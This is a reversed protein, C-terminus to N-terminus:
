AWSSVVFLFPITTPRRCKYGKLLDTLNLPLGMALQKPMNQLRLCHFVIYAELPKIISGTPYQASVARNFLPQSEDNAINSYDTKSIGKSFLNDDYSPYSVLALVAGTKPNMAVAAGRKAGINKISKELAEYVKQQLDSDVNLALSKGSIPQLIIKEGKNVGVANKIAEMKGPTGRLFDEYSKELGTKGIYDNLSYDASYELEGKNIRGMYGLVHAFNQGFIYNRVTNEEIVCEPFENIKSEWILLTEHPMNESVLVKSQDSNEIENKLEEQDKGLLNAIKSIEALVAFTDASFKRKDCVLDFAPSNSVLKKLNKDYIIGREPTILTIGGKNNQAAIYLKKGQLIQFYFTQLFLALVSLLFFGLLMYSMKGKLPIEFKKESLGLEEEQEKAMKDLFVEHPEIDKEFYKVKYKKKFNM